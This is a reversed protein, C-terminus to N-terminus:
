NTAKFFFVLSQVTSATASPQSNQDGPNKRSCVTLSYADILSSFPVSAHVVTLRRINRTPTMKVVMLLLSQRAAEMSVGVDDWVCVCLSLSVSLCVSLCVFLCIDTSLLWQQTSHHQWFLGNDVDLRWVTVPFWQCYEALVQQWTITVIRRPQRWAHATLTVGASNQKDCSWHAM